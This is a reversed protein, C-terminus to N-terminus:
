KKRWWGAPHYSIPSMGETELDREWGDNGILLERVADMPNGLSPDGFSFMSWEKNSAYDFIGDEVVLYGGPRVLSSYSMIERRVHERTHCSDLSVLVRSDGVAFKVRDIVEADVSDGQICIIKGSSMKRLTKIRNLPDIDITVVVPVRKAFWLASSGTRTGTEVIIEPNSRAIVQEYRDLDEQRKLMYHGNIQAYEGGRYLTRMTAAPDVPTEVLNHM